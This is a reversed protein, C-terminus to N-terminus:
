LAEMKFSKNHLELEASRIVAQLPTKVKLERLVLDDSPISLTAEQNKILIKIPKPANLKAVMPIIDGNALAVPKIIIPSSMRGTTVPKLEGDFKTHTFKQYIIPLGLFPKSLPIPDIEDHEFAILNKYDSWKGDGVPKYPISGINGKRFKAWYKGLIRWAEMADKSNRGFVVQGGILLSHSATDSQVPQILSNVWLRRKDPDSPPLWNSSNKEVKLAGCGRRTRAGVGGFVLWAKLANEIEIKRAKPYRVTITFKINVNGEAEKINYKKQEQFPFLFVGERPGNYSDAKPAIESYKKSNGSSIIETQIVIQGYKKDSGWLEEEAKFLEESTAFAGGATARWWFRLHGRIAASRIPNEEDVERAEYGGGFMPTILSLSLEITEKNATVPYKWEPASPLVYTM